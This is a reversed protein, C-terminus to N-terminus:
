CSVKPTCLRSGKHVEERRSATGTSSPESDSSDRDQDMIELLILMTIMTILLLCSVRTTNDGKRLSADSEGISSIKSEGDTELDEHPPSPSLITVAKPPLSKHRGERSDYDVHSVDVVPPLSLHRRAVLAPSIDDMEGLDVITMGAPNVPTIKFFIAPKPHIM